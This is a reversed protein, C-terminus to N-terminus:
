SGITNHAVGNHPLLTLDLMIPSAQDAPAGLGNASELVVMAEYRDSGTNEDPFNVQIRRRDDHEGFFWSKWIDMAENAATSYIIKLKFSADSGCVIRGKWRSGFSKYDGVENDFDITVENSSGSIDVLVGNEDELRIVADCANIATSTQPM